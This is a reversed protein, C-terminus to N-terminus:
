PGLAIYPRVMFSRLIFRLAEHPDKLTNKFTFNCDFGLKKLTVLYNFMWMFSFEVASYASALCLGHRTGNFIGRM